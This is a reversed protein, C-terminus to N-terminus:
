VGSSHLVLYSVCLSLWGATLFTSNQQHYSAEISIGVTVVEGATPREGTTAVAFWSASMDPAATLRQDADTLTTLTTPHPIDM